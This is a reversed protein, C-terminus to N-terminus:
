KSARLLDRMFTGGPHDKGECHLLEHERNSASPFDASLWVDCTKARLNIEACGEAAVGPAQYKACVDRMERHSVHHERVALKPWGPTDVHSIPTTCSVLLLLALALLATTM